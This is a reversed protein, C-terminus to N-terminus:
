DPRGQRYTLWACKWHAYSAKASDPFRDHVERYMDLARDYDKRLLYMNGATLLASELWPSNPTMTRMHELDGTLEADDNTNRALEVRQYWKEASAGSGDDPVQDLVARAERNQGSKRLSNALQILVASKEGAPAILLMARYEDAAPEYRRAEYLHDARRQHESYTPPPLAAVEPIKKLDNAANDANYNTAYNYYVRRLIEAATRNQGNQLYAKGLLYETDATAPTRHDELLRVAETSNNMALLAKAYALTADREYLSDPFRAGFDRLYTVSAAPENSLAYSNGIFFATYDKLEGIQPEAKRMAAIAASYQADIYRAYGIAFWALAGAETGAHLRAYNEVGAYAAPTRFEVLQRAMPRLDSSAVFTKKLHQARVATAKKRPKHHAGASVSKQHAATSKHAASNGKSATSRSSTSKKHSSASSSASGTSPAASSQAFAGVGAVQLAALLLTVFRNTQSVSM